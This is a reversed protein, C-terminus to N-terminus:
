GSPVRRYGALSVLLRSIPRSCFECVKGDAHHDHDDAVVLDEPTFVATGDAGCCLGYETLESRGDLAGMMMMAVAAILGGEGAADDAPAVRDGDRALVELLEDAWFAVGDIGCCCCGNGLDTTNADLPSPPISPHTKTWGALVKATRIFKADM